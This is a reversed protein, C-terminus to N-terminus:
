INCAPSFVNEAHSSEDIIIINDPKTETPIRHHIAPLVPLRPVRYLVLFVLHCPLLSM